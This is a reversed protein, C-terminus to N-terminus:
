CKRIGKLVASALWMNEYSWAKRGPATPFIDGMGLFKEFTGRTHGCRMFRDVALYVLRLAEKSPKLAIM